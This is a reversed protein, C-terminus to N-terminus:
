GAVVPAVDPGVVVAEVPEEVTIPAAGLPALVTLAEPRIRFALPSTLTEVEGDFMTKVTPHRTRLTVAPVSEIEIAEDQKWAGAMMEVTLRVLDFFDLHKLLYLTLLGDDLRQRSFFRGLGEDYENNGVALAVVRKIRKEGGRTTIEVAMRRSRFLRRLFFRIFGLRVGLTDRGRITERGKAVGPIFGVVVKHLFIRGNVEGVDMLRTQMTEVTDFWTDLDLPIGLDRALLNVTGLPLIALAIDTDVIGGAVATVTGDGGAAVIIEAGSRRADAVRDALPRDMDADITADLGAAHFREAITEASIGTTLATGSRCNLLVHYRRPM